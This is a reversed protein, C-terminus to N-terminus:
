ATLLRSRLAATRAPSFGLTGTAYGEVSGHRATLDALALRIVTEPARGYGPWRLTRGPHAAHWEAVLHPTALETLAFDAAVDDESVGLLTLVLAAILGTRDKGSACHFVVPKEAAAIVELTERIEEVGDETVEAFRDALYRWPDVDPDIEAQDYTRHEISLNHYVLGEYDPVRGKAAIEWPYRLDIVTRVGLAQLRDLDAPSTLKGLSDSRYLLGRRVSRGDAAPHGGLDRFNHLREFTLQRTTM